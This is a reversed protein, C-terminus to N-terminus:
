IDILRTHIVDIWGHRLRDMLKHEKLLLNLLVESSYNYANDVISKYYDEKTTFNIEVANPIVLKKASTTRFSPKDIGVNLTEIQKEDGDIEDNTDGGSKRVLFMGTEHIANLYKGTLLIKSSLPELFKPVNNPNAM